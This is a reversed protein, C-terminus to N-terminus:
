HVFTRNEYVKSDLVCFHKPLSGCEKQGNGACTTVMSLKPTATCHTFYKCMHTYIQTEHMRKSSYVCLQISRCTYSCMSYMNTINHTNFTHLVPCTCMHYTCAHSTHMYTHHKYVVNTHNRRLYLAHRYTIMCSVVHGQLYRNVSRNMKVLTNESTLNCLKM